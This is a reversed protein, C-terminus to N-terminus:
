GAPGSKVKGAAAQIRQMLAPDTSSAKAIENFKQPTLGSEQVAAAMKKQKDAPPAATDKQIDQVALVAKAFQEIETETYTTAAQAGSTPSSPTAPAQQEASAGGAAAGGSPQPLMAHANGALTFGCIAAGLTLANRTKM